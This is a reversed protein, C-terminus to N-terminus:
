VILRMIIKGYLQIPNALGKIDFDKFGEVNFSISKGSALAEIFPTTTASFIGLEIVRDIKTMLTQKVGQKERTNSIVERLEEFTKAKNYHLLLVSAANSSGANDLGLVM